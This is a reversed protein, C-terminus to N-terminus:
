AGWDALYLFGATAFITILLGVMVMVGGLSMVLFGILYLTFVIFAYFKQRNTM